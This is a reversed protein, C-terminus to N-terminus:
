VYTDRELITADRDSLERKFALVEQHLQAAEMARKQLLTQTESAQVDASQVRNELRKIEDVNEAQARELARVASRAEVLEKRLKSLEAERDDVTHEHRSADAKTHM